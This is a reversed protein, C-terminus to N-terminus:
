VDRVECVIYYSFFPKDRPIKPLKTFLKFNIRVLSNKKWGKPVIQDTFEWNTINYTGKKFPCALFSAKTKILTEFFMNVIWHNSKSQFAECVDGTINSIQIFKSPSMPSPISLIM